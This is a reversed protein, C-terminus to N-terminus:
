LICNMLVFYNEGCVFVQVAPIAKNVEVSQATTNYKGRDQVLTTKKSYKQTAM